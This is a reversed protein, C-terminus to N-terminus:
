TRAPIDWNGFEWTDDVSELAQSKWVESSRGWRKKGKRAKPDKFATESRTASGASTSSSGTSVATAKDIFSMMQWVEGSGLSIEEEWVNREGVEKRISEALARTRNDM